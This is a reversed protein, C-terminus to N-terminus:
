PLNSDFALVAGERWERAEGGVRLSAGRPVAVGLHLRLRHNTPGCHPRIRTAPRLLSLEM